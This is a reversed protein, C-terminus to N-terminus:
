PRIAPKQDAILPVGYSTLIREIDDHRRAIIEDRRDRLAADSRRVGISIDYAFPLAPTDAPPTVPVVALEIPQRQAFYGAFPGWVIAVDIDGDAVASIIRGPPNEVQDVDWMMFGVINQVLGRRALAHAPPPNSGEDVLAHLGIRLQRLEPDDFSRLELGTAKAYAFVYTSRYYHKTTLVPEYGSPVGMVVDCTRANLPRRIFGRRQPMWTYQPTVDFEAAVLEALRNEFGELRQNSFPLNNPDACVRLTGDPDAAAPAAAIMAAGAFGLLLKLPTRM